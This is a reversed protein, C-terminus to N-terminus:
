VKREQVQLLAPITSPSVKSWLLPMGRLVRIRWAQFSSESCSKEAESVKTLPEMWNVQVRFLGRDDGTKGQEVKELWTYSYTMSFQHTDQNIQRHKAKWHLKRNFQSSLYELNIINVIKSWILLVTPIQLIATQQIGKTTTKALPFILFSTPVTTGVGKKIQKSGM